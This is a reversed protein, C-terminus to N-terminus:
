ASSPTRSASLDRPSPSTYLLCGKLFRHARVGATGRGKGPYEAFPTVKIAGPDTGPLADASGSVTVVVGDRAPDLAGFFRVRQGAAVRIGAMGGAGRGQPRVASANFHLLQADSTVFVLEEEGTRLEVAGVVEDGDKLAIVDWTSGKPADPTVRKVVGQATGLALGPSDPSLSTLTLVREDAGLDLYAGVPAGGSLSPADNTPPLTPLELAGVRAVRSASTVIGVEGRATTRIVAVVGDHKARGGSRSPEDETTTRAMLGTTSLLVWCPDDAIEMPTSTAAPTGASELLM